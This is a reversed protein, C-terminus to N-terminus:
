SHATDRSLFYYFTSHIYNMVVLGVVGLAMVVWDVAVLFPSYVFWICVLCLGFVIFFYIAVFQDSIFQIILIVTY